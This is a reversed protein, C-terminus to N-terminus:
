SYKSLRFDASCLPRLTYKHYNQLGVLLSNSDYNKLLEPDFIYEVNRMDPRGAM